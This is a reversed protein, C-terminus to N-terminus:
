LLPNKVAGPNASSLITNGEPVVPEPPGAAPRVKALPQKKWYTLSRWVWELPGMRYYRLWLNSFALQFVWVGAVVYYAQYRQLKDFLAFGYGYFIFGCLISQMLYNTFAMQGVRALATWLTKFFGAKYLAVVFGLHGLAVFVRRIQYPHVGMRQFYLSADFRTDVLVAHMWYNLPLGIAYGCLALFVYFKLSREGTLVRWKFLAMGLFFLAMADFFGAHYFAKSQLRANIGSLYALITFYSGGGINKTEKAAEKKLAEPKHKEQYATWAAKAEKQEENLTAKKKELVLAAEGKTRMQHATYWQYTDKVTAALLFGLALLFLSRAAMKRFPFLFLGCIAYAYLIDGPWLLVFANIMGFVFLWLLRRYYIDAPNVGNNKRELKNLLLLAGAGFLLSFLARMTGEFLGEVAWWTYYNPGSYELRVNLNQAGQEPMSFYPINMLLIGLLAIGRLTDLLAIRKEPASAPPAPQNM